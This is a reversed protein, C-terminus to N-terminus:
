QQCENDANYIIRLENLEKTGGNTENPNELEGSSQYESYNFSCTRLATSKPSGFVENVVGNLERRRKRRLRIDM